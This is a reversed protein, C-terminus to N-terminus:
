ALKEQLEKIKEDLSDFRKFVDDLTLERKPIFSVQAEQPNKYAKICDEYATSNTTITQAHKVCAQNFIHPQCHHSPCNCWM